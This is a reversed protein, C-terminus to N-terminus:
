DSDCNENYFTVIQELGDRIRFEKTNIKEILNKCDSFYALTKAKLNNTLPDYPGLKTLKTESSKKLYYTVVTQSHSLSSNAVFSRTNYVVGYLQVKEGIVLEEVAILKDNEQTAFFTYTKISNKSYSIQVSSIDSFNIEEPKAKSYRKYKFTKSKLKGIVGTITDGSKLIIKSPNLQAFCSFNLMFLLLLTLKFKM